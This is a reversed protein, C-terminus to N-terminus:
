LGGRENTKPAITMGCELFVERAIEVARIAIQEPSYAWASRIAIQAAIQAAVEMLTLESTM